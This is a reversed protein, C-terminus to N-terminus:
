AGLYRDVVSYSHRILVEEDQLNICRKAGSELSRQTNEMTQTDELWANRQLVQAHELAWRESNTEPTRVYYRGEWITRNYDVPWFQHTFWIGESVHLLFNPFLVSLEFAFDERGSPNIAPPLMSAQAKAVLSGRARANATGAVPTPKADLSLCVGCTRHPGFLKVDSLGSSFVNPFSGAHITHVHYAESFSDVGIKWNCDLYTYYAFCHDLEAYPFGAFHPGYDGLFGVLSQSPEPELNIFVFGEWVDTAVKALGNAAKDFCPGFREEEPVHVVQGETDYVWGHFRCAMVAAKSSGFTEDGTETIVTNGRHSCSNHFGRVVGDKGRVLIVSTKLCHLKKVKWDGPNPLEETRAVCLWVRRYIREIERAFIKPSICSDIPVPDTGLEPFQAAWRLETEAM